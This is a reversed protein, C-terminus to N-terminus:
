KCIRTMEEIIEDIYKLDYKEPDLKISITKSGWTGKITETKTNLYISPGGITLACIAGKYVGDLSTIVDVDLDLLLSVLEDYDNSKVAEQLSELKSEIQKELETM